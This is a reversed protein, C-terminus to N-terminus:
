FGSRGLGIRRFYESALSSRSEGPDRDFVYGWDRACTIAMSRLVRHATTELKIRQSYEPERAISHLIDSSM